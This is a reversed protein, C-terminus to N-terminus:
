KSMYDAIKHQFSPCLGEGVRLLKAKHLNFVYHRRRMVDCMDDLIKISV